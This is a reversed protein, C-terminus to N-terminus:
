ISLGVERLAFQPDGKKSLESGRGNFNDTVEVVLKKAKRISNPPKGAMLRQRNDTLVQLYATNNFISSLM